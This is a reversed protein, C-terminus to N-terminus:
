EYRLLEEALMDGGFRGILAEIEAELAEDEDEDLVGEGILRAVLGSAMADHISDLTPPNERNEDDMVAEIVRSLAESARTHSFEPALAGPGFEEILTDLEDLVSNSVDFHHLRETEKFSPSLMDALFDRVQVLSIPQEVDPDNARWEIFASLEPSVYSSVDVPNRIM